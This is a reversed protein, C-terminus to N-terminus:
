LEYNYSNPNPRLRIKVLFCVIRALLISLEVFLMIYFFNSLTVVEITKDIGDRRM